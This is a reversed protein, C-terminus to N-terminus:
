WRPDSEEDSLKPPSVRIRTSTSAHSRASPKLYPALRSWGMAKLGFPDAIDSRFRGDFRNGIFVDAFAITESAGPERFSQALFEGAIVETAGLTLTAQLGSNSTDELHEQLIAFEIVPLQEEILEDIETDFDSASIRCKRKVADRTVNLGM